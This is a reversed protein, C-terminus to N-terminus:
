RGPLPGVHYTCILASAGQSIVPRRYVAHSSPANRQGAGAPWYAGPWAPCLGRANGFVAGPAGRRRCGGACSLATRNGAPSHSAGATNHVYQLGIPRIQRHAHEQCRYRKLVAPLARNSAVRVSADVRVGRVGRVGRVWESGGVGRRGTAAPWGEDWRISAQGPAAVGAGRCGHNALRREIDVGAWSDGENTEIQGASARGV